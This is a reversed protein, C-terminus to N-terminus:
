PADKRVSDERATALIGRVREAEEIAIFMLPRHYMPTLKGSQAQKAQAQRLQAWGGVDGFTITGIGNVDAKISPPKIQSLYETQEKGDCRAIVRRDTVAYTTRTLRRWRIFLRGFAVYLGVSVFLLGIVLPLVAGGSSARFTFFGVFALWFLMFPVFLKDSEDFVPYRKPAGSWLLREGPLLDFEGLYM